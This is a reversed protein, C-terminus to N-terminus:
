AFIWAIDGMINKIYVVSIGRINKSCSHMKQSYVDRKIVCDVHNMVDNCCRIWTSSFDHKFHYFEVFCVNFSLYFVYMINDYILFISSPQSFQYNERWPEFIILEGLRTLYKQCVAVSHVYERHIFSAIKSM